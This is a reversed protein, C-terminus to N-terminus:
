TCSQFFENWLFNRISKKKAMIGFPIIIGYIYETIMETFLFTKHIVLEQDWKPYIGYNQFLVMIHSM